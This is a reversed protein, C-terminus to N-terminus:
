RTIYNVIKCIESIEKKQLTLGSPLYLGYKAIHDSNPFKENKDTYRLRKLIKQQNMPWFFPRTEINYKLLEKSLSKADIKLNKNILIGVVWYINTLKKYKPPPIFINNNSKLETKQQSDISVTKLTAKM